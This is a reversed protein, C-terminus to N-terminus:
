VKLSDFYIWEVARAPSLVKCFHFGATLSIWYDVAFKMTPAVVETYKADTTSDTKDSYSISTWIWLPGLNSMDRDAGIRLQRGIEYYRDLSNKPAKSLAWNLVEANIEGCLNGADVKNFDEKVGTAALLVKQRSSLKTRMEIAGQPDSAIDAVQKSAYILETVTTANLTCDYPKTCKNSINPLPDPILQAAPFFQDTVRMTVNRTGM